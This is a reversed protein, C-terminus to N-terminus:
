DHLETLIDTYEPPVTKHTFVSPKEARFVLGFRPFLRLHATIGM